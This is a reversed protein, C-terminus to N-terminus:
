VIVLDRVEVQVQAIIPPSREIPVALGDASLGEVHLAIAEGAM